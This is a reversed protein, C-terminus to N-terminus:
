AATREPVNVGNGVAENYRRQRFRRQRERAFARRREVRQQQKAEPSWRPAESAVRILAAPGHGETLWDFADGGKQLGPLNIVKVADIGARTAMDAVRDAHERGPRDNDALILLECCGVKILEGTWSDRWSSAGAPPCTAPLGLNWMLDTAKEGENLFVRHRSHLEPLRYLGPLGAELGSVWKGPAQGPRQWRFQKNSYRVKQAVLVGDLDWYDYRAVISPKARPQLRCPFLDSWQLGLAKIVDNSRCGAWCRLLVKGDHCRSVSLSARRDTHTPCRARINDRGVKCASGALRGRDRLATVIKEFPDVFIPSIDGPDQTVNM